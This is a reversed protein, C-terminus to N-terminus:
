DSLSSAGRIGRSGFNRLYFMVMAAQGRAGGMSPLEFDMSM